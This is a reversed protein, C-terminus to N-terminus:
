TRSKKQKLHNKVSLEDIISVLNKDTSGATASYKLVTMHSNGTSVYQREKASSRGWNKAALRGRKSFWKKSVAKFKLKVNINKDSAIQNSVNETTQDKLNESSKNKGASNYWKRSIM